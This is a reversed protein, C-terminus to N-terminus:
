VDGHGNGQEIVGSVHQPVPMAPKQLGWEGEGIRKGYYKVLLGVTVPGIITNLLIAWVGTIFGAQSMYSTKNYGIEIILLGIEGRAVMASGLLLGSLWNTLGDQNGQKAQSSNDTQVTTEKVRGSPDSQESSSKKPTLYKRLPIWTGVVVKLGTLSERNDM